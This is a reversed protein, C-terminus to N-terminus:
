ANTALMHVADYPYNPHNEDIIRSKLKEIDDQSQNGERLRSLLEAYLKDDKQRMIETLEYLTFYSNWLNTALPGYNSKMDRFIWTYSLPELQFLDGVILIHINGLPNPNRKIQQLRREIQTFLM